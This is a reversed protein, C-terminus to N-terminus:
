YDLWRMFDRNGLGYGFDRLYGSYRSRKLRKNKDM